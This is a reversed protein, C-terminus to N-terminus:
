AVGFHPSAGSTYALKKIEVIETIVSVDEHQEHPMVEQFWGVSARVM